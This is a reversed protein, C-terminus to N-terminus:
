FGVRWRVLKNDGFLNIPGRYKMTADIWTREPIITLFTKDYKALGTLLECWDTTQTRIYVGEKLEIIVIDRDLPIDLGKSIDPSESSSKIFDVIEDFPRETFYFEDPNFHYSSLEPFKM